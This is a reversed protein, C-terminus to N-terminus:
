HKNTIRVKGDARREIVAADCADILDAKTHLGKVLDTCQAPGNEPSRPRHGAQARAGRPASSAVSAAPTM